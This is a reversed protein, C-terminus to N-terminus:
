LSLNLAMKQSRSRRKQDCFMVSLNKNHVQRFINPVSNAFKQFFHQLLKLACVVTLWLGNGANTLIEYDRLFLSHTQVRLFLSNLTWVSKGVIVFREWTLQFLNIENWDNMTFAVVTISLSLGQLQWHQKLTWRRGLLMRKVECCM